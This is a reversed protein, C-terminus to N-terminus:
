GVESKSSRPAPVRGELPGPCDFPIFGQKLAPSDPKLRFDGNKPDVFLPDAVMGAVDGSHKQWAEFDLSAVPLAVSCLYRWEVPHAEEIACASRIHAAIKALDVTMTASWSDELPTASRSWQWERPSSCKFWCVDDDGDATVIFRVMAPSFTFPKLFLEIHARWDGWPMQGPVAEGQAGDFLGTVTLTGAERQFEFRGADRDTAAPDSGQAFLADVTSDGDPLPNFRPAEDAMSGRIPQTGLNRWGGKFRVTGEECWYLNSDFRTRDSRWRVADVRDLMPTDSTLLINREFVIGLHDEMRTYALAAEDGYAFINNRVLNNRGYHQHFPNCNMNYCLNNEILLDSSGEDPYIGWGGYRQSRIDHIRNHRVRTGAANGLLYVGGMDSLLGKGLDHIHNWEITNGYADSEAYGWTWGVSIATYYFDHIHCRTVTNGSAKGILVGAGSMWLRGGDHIESDAVVCRRCGHWIKVGGAGVDHITGGHFEIETAGDSCELGYGGVHVIECDRFVIGECGAGVAVAGSVTASSQVTVADQRGPRWETHSFTINEFHVFKADRLDLLCEIGGVTAEVSEPTEGPRPMYWVCRAAPDSYWEGSETMAEPINEVVYDVGDGPAYALCLQTNRDVHVTATAEDIERIGVRSSMWLARLQIEIGETHSWTASLDGPTFSFSEVGRSHAEWHLTADPDDAVRYTGTKPLTARPMREGNIWLQRSFREDCDMWPVDARWVTRGNREAIQWDNIRRGGSIIVTEGEAARWTVPFTCFDFHGRVGFGSDKADLRWTRELQYFGGSLVVEITEPDKSNSELKWVARQAAAITALPGDTNDSNPTALTGTWRDSGSESSVYLSRM